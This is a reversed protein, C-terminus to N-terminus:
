GEVECETKFKEMNLNDQEKEKVEKLRLGAWCKKAGEYEVWKTTQRFGRARFSLNIILM